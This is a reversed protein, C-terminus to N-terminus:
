RRRATRFSRSGPASRLNTRSHGLNVIVLGGFWGAVVRGAPDGSGAAGFVVVEARLGLHGALPVREVHAAVAAPVQAAVGIGSRVTSSPPPSPRGGASVHPNQPQAWWSSQRM